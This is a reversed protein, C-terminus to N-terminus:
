RLSGVQYSHKRTRLADTQSPQQKCTLKVIIACHYWYYKKKWSVSVKSMLGPQMEGLASEVLKDIKYHYSMKNPTRTIAHKM